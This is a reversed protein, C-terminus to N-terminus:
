HRPSLFHNLLPFSLITLPHHCQLHYSSIPSVHFHFSLSICYFCSYHIFISYSDPAIHLQLFTPTLTSTLPFDYKTFIFKHYIVIRNFYSFTSMVKKVDTQHSLTVWLLQNNSNLQTVSLWFYCKLILKFIHKSVDRSSKAILLNSSLEFMQDFHYIVHRSSNAILLNSSLEVTQDSHYILLWCIQVWSLFAILIIYLALPHSLM